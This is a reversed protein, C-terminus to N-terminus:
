PERYSELEERYLNSSIVGQWQDNRIYADQDVQPIAPLWIEPNADKLKQVGAIFRNDGDALAYVESLLQGRLSRIYNSVIRRKEHNFWFVSIRRPSKATILVRRNGAQLKYVNASGLHDAYALREIEHGIRDRLAANSILNDIGFQKLKEAHQPDASVAPLPDFSTIGGVCDNDVSTLLVIDPLQKSLKLQKTASAVQQALTKGQSEGQKESLEQGSPANIIAFTDQHTLGYIARGGRNGLYYLDDAIQKATGDLFVPPTQATSAVYDSLKQQAPQLMALWSEPSVEVTQTRDLTRPRGPLLINPAPLAILNDITKLYKAADGGYRPPLYVPYTAPGHKMTAITDGGVLLTRQDKEILFCVSGHTHGPTAIVRITTKGFRLVEGGSLEEDVHIPGASYPQRERISFLGDDQEIERLAQCDAKGAYVKAGTLEKLENTGQVCDYNAHTLMIHRVDRIGLGIQLLGKRILYGTEDSGTNFLIAGEETNVVYAASPYLEGLAYVDPVLSETSFGAWTTTYKPEPTIPQRTLNLPTNSAVSTQQRDCGVLAALPLGIAFVALLCASRGYRNFSTTRIEFLM